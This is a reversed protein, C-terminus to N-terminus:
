SLLDCTIDHPTSQPLAAPAACGSFVGLCHSQWVAWYKAKFWGLQDPGAALGWKGGGSMRSHIDKVVIELQGIFLHPPKKPPAVVGGHDVRNLFFNSFLELGIRTYRFYNGVNLM